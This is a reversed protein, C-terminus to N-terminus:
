FVFGVRYVWPSNYPNAMGPRYLMDYFIGIQFGGRSGTPQFYGGGLLMRDIWLRHSETISRLNEFNLMEYEAMAFANKLVNYRAFTSGGYTHTNLDLVGGYRTFLYTAGVGASFRNTLMYGVRPSAGIVFTNQTFQLVGGGGFYIRDGFSPDETEEINRQGWATSLSFFLALLFFIGRM